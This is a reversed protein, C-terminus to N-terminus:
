NKLIPKIKQFEETIEEITNKQQYEQYEEELEGNKTILRKQNHVNKIQLRSEMTNEKLKVKLKQQYTYSFDVNSNFNSGIVINGSQINIGGISIQPVQDKDIYEQRVYGLNPNNGIQNGIFVNGQEVNVQNVRIEGKSIKKKLQKEQEDVIKQLELKLKTIEEQLLCINIIEQSSISTKKTLYKQNEEKQKKAFNSDLKVVEEQAELLTELKDKIKGRKLYNVKQIYSFKLDEMEKEKSEIIKKTEQYLAIQQSLKQNVERLNLLDNNLKEKEDKLREVSKIIKKALDNIEKKETEEEKLLSSLIEKLGEYKSEVSAISENNIQQYNNYEKVEEELGKVREQLEEREKLLETPRKKAINILEKNSNRWTQFVFSGQNTEKCGQYDLVELSEPLYELDSDISTNEISLSKLKNLSKLPELSGVFTKGELILKKLGNLFSFEEFCNANIDLYTIEPCNSIFLGSLCDDSCNIKALKSLNRLKLEWSKNKSAFEDIVLPGELNSSGSISIEIVENRKEESYNKDGRNEWYNQWDTKQWNNKLPASDSFIIRALPNYRYDINKLHNSNSLDLSTLRNAHCDLKELSIFDSLDLHGELKSM